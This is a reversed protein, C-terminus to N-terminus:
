TGYFSKTKFFSLLFKGFQFFNIDLLFCYINRKKKDKYLHPTQGPSVMYSQDWGCMLVLRPIRRARPVPATRGRPEERQYEVWAQADTRSRQFSRLLAQSGSLSKNAFAEWDVHRQELLLFSLAVGVGELSRGATHKKGRTRKWRLARTYEVGCFGVDGFACEENLTFVCIITVRQSLHPLRILFTKLILRVSSTRTGTHAHTPFFCQTVIVPHWEEEPHERARTHMWAPPRYPASRTQKPGRLFRVSDFATTDIWHKEGNRISRTIYGARWTWQMGGGEESQGWILVESRLFVCKWRLSLNWIYM